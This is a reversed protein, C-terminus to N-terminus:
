WGDGELSGGLEPPSRGEASTSAVGDEAGVTKALFSLRDEYSEPILALPIGELESYAHLADDLWPVFRFEKFVETHRRKLAAMFEDAPELDLGACGTLLDRVHVGGLQEADRAVTRQLAAVFADEPEVGADHFHRLASAFQRARLRGAAAAASLAAGLRALLEEEDEVGLVAVAYLLNLLSPVPLRSVEGSVRSLLLAQVQPDPALRLKAYGWLITVLDGGQFSDLSKCVQLELECLFEVSPQANLSALGWMLQAIEKPLFTRLSDQAQGVVAALNKQGPNFGLAGWSLIASKIAGPSMGEGPVQNSLRQVVQNSPRYGMFAYARLARTASDQAFSDVTAAVQQDIELLWNPEGPEPAVQFDKCFHLLIALDRPGFDDLASRASTVIAGRLAPSPALKLRSLAQCLTSLRAPSAGQLGGGAGLAAQAAELFSSEPPFRLRAYSALVSVLEASRLSAPEQRMVAGHLALFRQDRHLMAPTRAAGYRRLATRALHFLASALLEPSLSGLHHEVLYLIDEPDSPRRILAGLDAPSMAADAYGMAGQRQRERFLNNICKRYSFDESSGDARVVFFSKTNPHEPHWKVAVCKLGAEGLKRSGQPHGKRLLDTVLGAEPGELVAGAPARLLIPAVADYLASPGEFREGGVEV